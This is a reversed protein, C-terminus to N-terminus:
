APQRTLDCLIDVLAAMAAPTVASMAMATDETWADKVEVDNVRGARVHFTVSLGNVAARLVREVPDPRSTWEGQSIPRITIM